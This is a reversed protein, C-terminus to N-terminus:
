LSYDDLCRVFITSPREIRDIIWKSEFQRRWYSEDDIWTGASVYDLKLDLDNLIFSKPESPLNAISQILNELDGDVVNGVKEVIARASFDVLRPCFMLDNLITVRRRM